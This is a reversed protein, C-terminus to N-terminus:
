QADDEDFWMRLFEPVSGIGLPVTRPDLPFDFLEIVERAASREALRPPEPFLDPQKV